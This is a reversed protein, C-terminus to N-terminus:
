PIFIKFLKKVKQGLNFREEKEVNETEYGHLILGCLASLSPDEPLSAFGKPFGLRCSLKLERKAFDKIGPLKVTGGTLVAGGPLNAYFSIKKLEKNVLHFIERIRAEIIDKLVKQSFVLSEDEDIKIKKDLIKKGSSLICDGFEIKIKEATDIDIKLCIAIDNTIHSSGIPIVALHVLSGEQFVAMGTTGAGIDLLVVGLEKERDTLVAKASAIPAAILDNIQLGSDLIAKTTNKFYPSFCHVIMVDAELRMGNMGIVEKINKQDDVIFEKPFIELIEKNTSPFFNRASQIARDVDDESIKRDARSVSVLSHIISYSIHNGNIISYIDNIKKSSEKEIKEILSSIIETTKSADVVVGKRIGFANEKFFGVVHFDEKDNEKFASLMKISSTGIDLATIISSKAM